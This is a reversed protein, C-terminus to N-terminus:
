NADHARSKEPTSRARWRVYARALLIVGGGYVVVALVRGPWQVWFGVESDPVFFPQGVESLPLYYLQHFFFWILGIDPTLWTLLELVFPFLTVCVTIIALKRHRRIMRRVTSTVPRAHPACRRQCRDPNVSINPM